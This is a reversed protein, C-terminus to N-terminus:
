DNKQAYFRAFGELHERAEVFAAADDRPFGSQQEELILLANEFVDHMEEFTLIGKTVLKGTLGILVTHGILASSDFTAAM